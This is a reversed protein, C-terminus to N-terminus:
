EVTLKKNNGMYSAILSFTSNKCGIIEKCRSLAFLDICKIKILDDDINYMNKKFSVPEGSSHCNVTDFDKNLFEKYNSVKYKNFFDYESKNADTSLYFHKGSNIDCHKIYFDNSIKLNAYHNHDGRRYHIGIKDFCYNEITNNLTEDYFKIKNVAREPNEHEIKRSFKWGCSLGINKNKPLKFGNNVIDNSNIKTLLTPETELLITNPFNLFKSEPFHYKYIAVQINNIKALEYCFQWICLSNAFGGYRQSYIYNM